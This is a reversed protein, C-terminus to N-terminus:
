EGWQRDTRRPGYGRLRIPTDLYEALDDAYDEPSALCFVKYVPDRLVGAANFPLHSSLGVRWMDRQELVDLHSLALWNVGGLLDISRKVLAADLWGRRFSGQYGDDANHPEPLANLCEAETPFPGAGHRTSYTRLCGVREVDADPAYWNLLNLANIYTTASSTVHPVTGFLHDLQVGQAGEFIVMEHQRFLRDIDNSGWAVRVQKGFEYFFEMCFDLVDEITPAIMRGAYYQQQQELKSRILGKDGIALDGMSLSLFPHTLSLRYATGVGLGCTGRAQGRQIRQQEEWRSNWSHFPTIIVAESDITLYKLPDTLGFAALEEAERMVAFPDVRMYQSLYTDAGALTGSGFSNFTHHRGDPLVVNHAAQPGGNYRVNLSAGHKATLWDVTAGKGEDGFLLGAVLFAKKM